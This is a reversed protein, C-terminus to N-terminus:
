SFFGAEHACFQKEDFQCGNGGIDTQSDSRKAIKRTFYFHIYEYVKKFGWDRASIEFFEPEPRTQRM